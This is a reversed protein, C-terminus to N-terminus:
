SHHKLICQTYLSWSSNFYTYVTFMSYATCSINYNATRADTNQNSLVILHLHLPNSFDLKIKLFLSYLNPKAQNFYSTGINLRRKFTKINIRKHLWSAIEDTPTVANNRKNNM